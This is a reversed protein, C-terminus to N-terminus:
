SLSYAMYVLLHVVFASVGALTSCIFPDLISVGQDCPINAVDIDRVMLYAKLHASSASGDASCNRARPLLRSYYESIRPGTNQSSPLHVHQIIVFMRTITCRECEFYPTVAHYGKICKAKVLM